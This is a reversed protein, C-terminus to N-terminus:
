LGVRQPAFENLGALAPRHSRSSNRCRGAEGCRALVAGYADGGMLSLIQGHAQELSRPPSQGDLRGKPPM